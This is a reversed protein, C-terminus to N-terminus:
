SAGGPQLRRRTAIRPAPLVSPSTEAASAEAALALGAQTLRYTHRPPRGPRTGPEWRSEVQGRDALRMLIPYLSGAQLGTQQMIDYGYRWNEPDAALAALIRATQPSPRRRAGVVCVRYIHLEARLAM